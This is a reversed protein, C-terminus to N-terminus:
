TKWTLEFTVSETTRNSIVASPEGCFPAIGACLAGSFSECFFRSRCVPTKLLAVHAHRDSKRHVDIGGGRWSRVWLKYAQELAPWPTMGLQGALRLLTTLFAGHVGDGVTWGVRRIQAVPLDLADLARYHRHLTTLAIWSGPTVSLVDCQLRAVQAAYSDYHGLSRLARWDLALITGRAADLMRLDPPLAYLAEGMVHDSTQM